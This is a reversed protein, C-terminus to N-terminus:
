EAECDHEQLCQSCYDNGCNSCTKLEQKRLQAGCEPCSDNMDINSKRATTVMFMSEASANKMLVAQYKKTKVNIEPARVEEETIEREKIAFV